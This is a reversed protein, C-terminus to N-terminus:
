RANPMVIVQQGNVFTHNTEDVTAITFSAGSINSVSAYANYIVQSKSFSSLVLLFIFFYKSKM